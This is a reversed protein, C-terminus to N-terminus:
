GEGVTLTVTGEGGLVELRLYPVWSLAELFDSSAAERVEQWRAEPSIRGMLRFITVGPGAVAAQVPLLSRGYSDRIAAPTDVAGPGTQQLQIM